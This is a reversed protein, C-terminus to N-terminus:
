SVGTVPLAAADETLTRTNFTTTGDTKKITWTTSPASSELMALIIECLSHTSATGEVTAVSRGLIADAIALMTASSLVVGSTGTDDLIAAVETDLFDDIADLKSNVTTFSSAIDSADAPDSPLNDTKAKIAAIAPDVADIIDNWYDTGSVGWVIRAGVDPVTVAVTVVYTGDTTTEAVNTTTFTAYSTGDMNLLRYGISEATHSAGLAVGLNVSQTM